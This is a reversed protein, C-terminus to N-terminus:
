DANGLWELATEPSSFLKVPYSTKALRIFINGVVRTFASDAVIALAAATSVGEQGVYVMRAERSLTGTNRIDLLIPIRMGGTIQRAVELNTRADDPTQQSGPLSTVSMIGDDRLELSLTKTVATREGTPSVNM